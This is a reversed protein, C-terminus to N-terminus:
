LYDGPEIYSIGQQAFEFADANSEVAVGFMYRAIGFGDCYLWFDRWDKGDNELSEHKDQMPLVLVYFREFPAPMRIKLIKDIVDYNNKM